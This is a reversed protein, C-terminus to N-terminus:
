IKTLIYLKTNSFNNKAFDTKKIIFQFIYDKDNMFVNNDHLTDIQLLLLDEESNFDNNEVPTGFLKTGDIYVESNPEFNIKYNKDINVYKDYDNFDVKLLKAENSLLVKGQGKELNIFFYLMGEKKGPVNFEILEELNIQCIFIDDDDFIDEDLWKEPIAPTGLYRSSHCPLEKCEVFNILLSNM